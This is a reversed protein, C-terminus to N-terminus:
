IFYFTCLYFCVARHNMGQLNRSTKVSRSWWSCKNNRPWRKSRHLQSHWRARTGDNGFRQINHERRCYGGIVLELWIIVSIIVLLLVIQLKMYNSPIGNVELQRISREREQLQQINYDDEILIQTNVQQQNAGSNSPTDDM